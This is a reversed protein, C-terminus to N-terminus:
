ACPLFDSFTTYDDGYVSFSDHEVASHVHAVGVGTAVGIEGADRLGLIEIAGEGADDDRVEMQIM